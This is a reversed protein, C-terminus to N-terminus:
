VSEPSRVTLPVVVFRLEVLRKISSLFTTRPSVAVGVSVVASPPPIVRLPAVSLVNLQTSAVSAQVEDSCILRAEPM